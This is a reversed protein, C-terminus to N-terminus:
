VTFQWFPGAKRPPQPYGGKGIIKERRSTEVKDPISIIM